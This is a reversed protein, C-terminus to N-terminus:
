HTRKLLKLSEPQFIHNKKKNVMISFVEFNVNSTRTPNAIQLQKDATKTNITEMCWMNRCYYENSLKDALTSMETCLM